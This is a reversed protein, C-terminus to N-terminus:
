WGSIGNSVKSSLTLLYLAFLAAVLMSRVTVVIRTTTVNSGILAGAAKAENLDVHDSRTRASTLPEAPPFKHFYASQVLSWPLVDDAPEAVWQDAPDRM